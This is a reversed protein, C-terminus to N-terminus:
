RSAEPLPEPRACTTALEVFERRESSDLFARMIEVVHLAMDGGARPRRGLRIADAMDSLGIGRSNDAHGFRLPVERFKEEGRRLLHVPGGFKDPDPLRLTGESGYIEMFPLGHGWIDFSLMLTAMAGNEFAIGGAVHTPTEVPFSTGLMPGPCSVTREPFGKAAMACVTKAPGLMSVLATIYYPGYDYIPGAGHKYLFAPNPHEHEPGHWGLFATASLPRGIAGEDVLARCTQLGGGLFTDPACGLTLGKEKALAVLERADSVEISLPKEVYVHKGALLAHKCVDHHVAPITINLVIDVEPNALLEDPSQATPIGHKEAAARARGIDIDACAVVRTNAFSERLNRMYIDSINGCGIIGVGTKANM